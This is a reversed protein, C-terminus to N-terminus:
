RCNTRAGNPGLGESGNTRLTAFRLRLVSLVPEACRLRLGLAGGSHCEEVEGSARSRESRVSCTYSLWHPATGIDHPRISVSGM